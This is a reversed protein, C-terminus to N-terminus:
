SLGVHLSVRTGSSASEIVLSECLQRAIWLGRGRPDNPRPPSHGAAPDSMGPGHDQVEFVLEGGENWIVITGEGRGHTVANMAVEHAALVVEAVRAPTLGADSASRRVLERVDILGAQLDLSTAPSPQLVSACM